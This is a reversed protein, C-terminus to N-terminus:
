VWNLTKLGAVSENAFAVELFVMENVGVVVIDANESAIQSIREFQCDLLVFHGEV